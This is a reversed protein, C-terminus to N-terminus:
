QRQAAKLAAQRAKYAALQQTVYADARRCQATESALKICVIILAIVIVM